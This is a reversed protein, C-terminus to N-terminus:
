LINMISSESPLPAVLYVCTMLILGTLLSLQDGLNEIIKKLM